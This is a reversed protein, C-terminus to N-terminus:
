RRSGMVANYADVTAEAIRAQTFNAHVRDRGRRVLDQRLAHDDRLRRLCSALATIDGEPFVLGADAILHPIEGSDSGVVAVDCSMAEILMRGFQEKWKVTSLSPLVAIDLRSAFAPVEHSPVGPVIRFRDGLGREAALARLRNEEPGWGLIELRTDDGLSAVAEVLLHVGKFAHLRGSFWGVTFPQGSSRERNPRFLEPDVGFQPIVWAPGAYGKARLVEVADRNGALAGGINRYVYQEILRFPLPYARNLNQWTFFLTRAGSRQALWLAHVTAVNYPEEDIHILDPRAERILTALGPYFHFHFQGNLAMPTDVLRYGNTHRRELPVRRGADDRWYPPVIVTLDVGRSAIEELKKQYAGAICAKSIMLVRM